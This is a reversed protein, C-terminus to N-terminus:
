LIAQMGRPSGENQKELQFVREQVAQWFGAEKTPGGDFTVEEGFVQSGWGQCGCKDPTM